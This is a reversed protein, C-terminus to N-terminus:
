FLNAVPPPEFPMSRISKLSPVEICTRFELMAVM